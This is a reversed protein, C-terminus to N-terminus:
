IDYKKRKLGIRQKNVKLSPNSKAFKRKSLKNTRNTTRLHKTNEM